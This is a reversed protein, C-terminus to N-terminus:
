PTGRGTPRARTTRRRAVKGGTSLKPTGSTVAQNRDLPTDEFLMPAPEEGLGMALVLAELSAALRTRETAALAAIGSLLHQTPSQPARALTRRGKATIFLETRRRDRTGARRTVMGADMLREIMGAASTRDTMTRTALETLSLGPEADVFELTFLQAARLGTHGEVASAGLRLSRVLRRVATVVYAVERRAAEDLTSAHQHTTTHAV